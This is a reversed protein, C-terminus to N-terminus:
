PAPRPEPAILVFKVTTYRSSGDRPRPIAITEAVSELCQRAATIDEDDTAFSLVVDAHVGAAAAADGPPRRTRRQRTAGRGLATLRVEFLAGPVPAVCGRLAGASRGIAAAIAGTDGPERGSVEIAGPGPVPARALDALHQRARGQWPGEGAVHLYHRFYAIAWETKGRAVQALGLHYLRDAAPTFTISGSRLRTLTIDHRLASQLASRARAEQEDRDYAAALAYNIRWNGPQLKNATALAHIAERLRGLAMYAEGLHLHVRPEGTIGRGLIRKYHVIAREYEGTQALCRALGMDLAWRPDRSEVLRVHSAKAPPEYDPELAFVRGYTDACAQWEARREQLLALWWLALPRDPAIDVASRLVEEAEAEARDSRQNLLVETAYAIRHQYRKRGPHLVREWLASKQERERDFDVPEPTYRRSQAHGTGVLAVGVLAVGVLGLRTLAAAASRARRTM